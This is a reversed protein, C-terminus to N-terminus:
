IVLHRQTLQFWAVLWVYKTFYKKQLRRQNQCIKRLLSILSSTLEDKEM